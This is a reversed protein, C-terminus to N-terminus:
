ENANINANQNLIAFSNAMDSKNTCLRYEGSLEAIQAPMLRRPKSPENFRNKTDRDGKEKRNKTPKSPKRKLGDIFALLPTRGNMGGSQHPRKTNYTVLWDDLM